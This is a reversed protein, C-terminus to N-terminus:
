SVLTSREIKEMRGYLVEENIELNNILKLTTIVGHSIGEDENDGYEIELIVTDTRTESASQNPTQWTGRASLETAAQMFDLGESKMRPITLTLLKRQTRQFHTNTSEDGYLLGFLMDKAQQLLDNGEPSRLEDGILDKGKPPADGSLFKEQILRDRTRDKYRDIFYQLKITDLELRRLREAREERRRNEEERVHNRDMEELSHADLTLRVIQEILWDRDQGVLYARLKKEFEPVLDRQIERVIAEINPM